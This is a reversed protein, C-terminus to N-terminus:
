ILQMWCSWWTMTPTKTTSKRHYLITLCPYTYSFIVVLVSWDHNTICIYYGPNIMTLLPSHAILNILVVIHFVAQRRKSSMNLANASLGPASWGHTELTVSTTMTKLCCFSGLAYVSSGESIHDRDQPKRSYLSCVGAVSCSKRPFEAKVSVADQQMGSFTATRGAASENM